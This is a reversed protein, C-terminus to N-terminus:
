RRFCGIAYSYGLWSTRRSTSCLLSSHRDFLGSASLTVSILRRLSVTTTPPRALWKYPLM